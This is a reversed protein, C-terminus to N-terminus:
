INIKKQKNELLIPVLLKQKHTHKNGFFLDDSILDFNLKLIRSTYKWIVTFAQWLVGREVGSIESFSKKIMYPRALNSHVFYVKIWGQGQLFFIKNENLLFFIIYDAVFIYIITIKYLFKFDIGM